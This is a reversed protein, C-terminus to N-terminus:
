LFNLELYSQFYIHFEIDLARYNKLDAFVIAAIGVYKAIDEKNALNPNKENVQDYALKIATQLVDYLKVVNGKRTSAKKGNTLYLGFNVHNVEDAFDYGM